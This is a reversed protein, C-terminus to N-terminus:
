IIEELIKITSYKKAWSKIYNLNPKAIELISKIDEIQKAGQGEKHWILKSLILDKPSIFNVRQKNIKKTVKREFKEFPYRKVLFDVKPGTQPHIFNFEGKRKM